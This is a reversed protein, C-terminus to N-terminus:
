PNDSFWRSHSTNSRPLPLSHRKRSALISWFSLLPVSIPEPTPATFYHASIECEKGGNGTRPDQVLKRGRGRVCGFALGVNRRLMVIKSGYPVGETMANRFRPM